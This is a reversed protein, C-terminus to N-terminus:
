DCLGGGDCTYPEMYDEGITHTPSTGLNRGQEDLFEVEYATKEGKKFVMLVVGVSGVPIPQGPIPRTLRFTDYEGFM